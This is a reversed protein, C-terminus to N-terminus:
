RDVRHLGFDYETSVWAIGPSSGAAAFAWVEATSPITVYDGGYLPFAPAGLVRAIEASAGIWAINGSTTSLNRIGLSARAPNAALIRQPVDTPVATLSGTSFRDAPRERTLREPAFLAALQERLEVSTSAQATRLEHTAGAIFQELRGVLGDLFDRDCM